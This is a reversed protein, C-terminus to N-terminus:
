TCLVQSKVTKLDKKPLKNPVISLSFTGLGAVDSWQFSYTTQGPELDFLKLYFVSKKMFDLYESKGTTIFLECAAFYFEDTNSGDGYPYYIYEKPNEIAAKWAKEAVALCKESYKKDYKKWLRASQATVAAVDLTAATSPAVFVRKIVDEHPPTGLCSWDEDWVEHVVMGAKPNGDKVQMKMLMEVEWRAEDLIDPVKNKNEPINMKGDSLAKSDSGKIYLTREYENQLTWVSIGANVANKGHDGADYWGGESYIAYSVSNDASVAVENVHGAPRTLDERGAYPMTIDIGSRAHYFYSLADYKLKDYIQNNIDFPFSETAGDVCLTYNKGKKTYSSFDIRHINDGSAEDFGYVETKGSKVVKGKSDKLYWKVPTSSDCVVIAKKPGNEFYGLQNVKVDPIEVVEPEPTEVKQYQDDWM